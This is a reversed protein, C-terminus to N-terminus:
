RKWSRFLHVDGKVAPAAERPLRPGADRAPPEGHAPVRLGPTRRRLSAEPAAAAASVVLKVGRDYFEDVLSIFRRAADDDAAGMVPVGSLFVAQYCRAIEIYDAVSRPGECLERFEFWVVDEAERRARVPRGEVQIKVDRRGRGDALREFEAALRADADTDRGARALADGARAAAAPLRRRSRDRRGPLAERHARDRAPFARAAPRGPLARRAAPELHRTADRRAPVAGRAAHRPDDRGRRRRRRVRRHGSHAGERGIDAAVQELPSARNRNRRLRAHVDQMFRHFHERRKERIPLEAFFADVLFTKGRGVGGWLYLGRLPARARPLLALSRALLSNRALIRRRLDELRALAARQSADLAHGQAALAAEVRATLPPRRSDPSLELAGATRPLSRARGPEGARGHEPGPARPDGRAGRARGGQRQDHAPDRAGAPDPGTRPAAHHQRPDAPPHARGAGRRPDIGDRLKVFLVVRVDHGVEQGVVVSELVEPLQEVQRYIEATGIRVGGPNLVADSRGLIVLGGRPTLLAYDGHHWVGAFKEFYAARYRAGDPDDWFGVPMSPFPATCVLEGKEETVPRGTDDWVEVKMGLGRCQLEGRYVPLLPNGLAFCSVIDTGGSISALQVDPGIASAVFDFQEPGLPSGTSLLTRLVALGHREAPRYGAKELAALYRPSTGFITVGEDAAM